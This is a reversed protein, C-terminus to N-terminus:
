GIRSCLDNIVKSYSPDSVDIRKTDVDYRDKLLADRVRDKQMQKKRYHNEGDIEIDVILPNRPKIFFIVCIDLTYFKYYENSDDLKTIFPNRRQTLENFIYFDNRNGFKQKLLFIMHYKAGYHEDMEGDSMKIHSFYWPNTRIIHDIHKRNLLDFDYLFEKAKLVTM